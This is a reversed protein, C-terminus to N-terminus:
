PISALESILTTSSRSTLRSLFRQVANPRRRGKFTVVNRKGFPGMTIPVIRDFKTFGFKICCGKKIGGFREAFPVLEKELEVQGCINGTIKYCSICQSDFEVSLHDCHNNASIKGPVSTFAPYIAPTNMVNMIMSFAFIGWIWAFERGAQSQGLSHEHM